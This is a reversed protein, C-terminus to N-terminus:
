SEISIYVLGVLYDVSCFMLKFLRDSLAKKASM